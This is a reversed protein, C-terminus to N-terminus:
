DVPFAPPYRATSLSVPSRGLSTATQSESSRSPTLSEQRHRVLTARQPIRQDSTPRTLAPRTKTDDSIRSRISSPAILSIVQIALRVFLTQTAPPEVPLSRQTTTKYATLKETDLEEQPVLEYHHERAITIEGTTEELEFLAIVDDTIFQAAIPRAITDPFKQEAIRFDQWIQIVSLTDNGDKPKCQQLIHIPATNTSDPLRTTKLERRPESSPSRCPKSRTCPKAARSSRGNM